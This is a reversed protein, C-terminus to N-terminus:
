PKGGKIIHVILSILGGLIASTVIASIAGIFAARLNLLAIDTDHKALKAEHNELKEEHRELEGLVARAHEVWEGQSRSSAPM